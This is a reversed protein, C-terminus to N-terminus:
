ELDTALRQAVLILQGVVHLDVRVLPVELAVEAAGLELSAFIEPFVQLLIVAAPIRVGAGHRLSGVLGAGM